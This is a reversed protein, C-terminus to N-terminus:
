ANIKRLINQFNTLEARVGNKNTCAVFKEIRDVKKRWSEIDM